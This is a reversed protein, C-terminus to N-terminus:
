FPIVTKDFRSDTNSYLLKTYQNGISENEKKIKAIDFSKFLKNCYKIHKITLMLLEYEYEYNINNDKM